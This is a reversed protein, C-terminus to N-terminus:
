NVEIVNFECRTGEGRVSSITLRGGMRSLAKQVISLGLGTSENVDRPQLTQFPKMMREINEEAIGEGQDIVAFVWEGEGQKAEVRVHGGGYKIANSMLNMVVAQFLIEDCVVMPLDEAVEVHAERGGELLDLVDLVHKRSDFRTPNPEHHRFRSYHLMGDVYKAIRTTRSKLLNLNEIVEPNEEGELDEELWEALSIIGRIPAKLDHSVGRSFEDLERNAVELESNTKLLTQNLDNMGPLSLALPMVRILGVVTAWSVIATMFKLVGAVRYVPVWFIISELLHTLGCFLIFAVFLVMLGRFAVDTRRKYLFFIIVLPIAFYAGWIALDSLIHLWGHGESWVGCNWRAPFDSTDFLNKWFYELFEEGRKNEVASQLKTM